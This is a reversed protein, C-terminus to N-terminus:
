LWGHDLAERARAQWWQLDALERDRVASDENELADLSKNWGMELLGHLLGLEIAREDTMPSRVRFEAILEERSPEVHAASGTLFIALDLAPPGESAIAWDLFVVGGPELALNVLWLDAHVLTIAGHRMAAALPMPDQHLARVADLLDPRTLEAFCDWGHLIADALPYQAKAESMVRPSLLGLRVDLPCAGSPVDGAFTDHVATMAELIRSCEVSTLVRTWGPVADGLDRMLTVTADGEEWIDLIAHGVPGCLRDLAGSQWLRRERPVGGTLDVTLDDAASATKMILSTGDALRIRELRAGSRGDHGELIHREVAHELLERSM